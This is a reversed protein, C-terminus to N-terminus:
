GGWPGRCDNGTAIRTVGASLIVSVIRIGYDCPSHGKAVCSGVVRVLVLVLADRM